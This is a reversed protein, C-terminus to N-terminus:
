KIVRRNMKTIQLIQSWSKLTVIVLSFPPNYCTSNSKSDFSQDTSPVWDIHLLMQLQCSLGFDAASIPNDHQTWLRGLKGVELWHLVTQLRKYVWLFTHEKTSQWFFTDYYFLKQIWNKCSTIFKWGGKQKIQRLKQNQYIVGVMANIIWSIMSLRMWYNSINM